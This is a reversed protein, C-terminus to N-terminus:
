EKIKRAVAVGDNTCGGFRQFAFKDANIPWQFSGLPVIAARQAVPDYM